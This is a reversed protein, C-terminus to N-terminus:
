SYVGQVLMSSYKVQCLCVTSVPEYINTNYACTNMSVCVCISVCVCVETAIVLQLPNTAMGIVELADKLTLGILSKGNM